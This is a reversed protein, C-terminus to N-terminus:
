FRLSLGMHAGGRTPMASLAFRPKNPNPFERLKVAGAIGMALGALQGLGAAVTLVGLTASRSVPAAAFPGGLPIMMRRGYQRQRENDDDRAFDISLAGILVSAGYVAGLTTFGSVMIGKFRNHQKLRWLREEEAPDVPAPMGAVPAVPAAPATTPAPAPTTWGNDVIPDGTAPAPAPAPTPAPAPAPEPAPQAQAHAGGTVLLAAISVALMVSPM